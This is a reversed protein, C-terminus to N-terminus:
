SWGPRLWFGSWPSKTENIHNDDRNTDKKICNFPVEVVM